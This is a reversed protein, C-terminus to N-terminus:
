YNYVMNTPRFELKCSLVQRPSILLPRSIGKIDTFEFNVVINRLGLTTQLPYYRINGEPQYILYDRGTTSPDIKFDTIVKKSFNGNGTIEGRSSISPSTVTMGDLFDRAFTTNRAEFFEDWEGIVRGSVDTSVDLKNLLSPFTYLAGLQNTATGGLYRVSNSPNIEIAKFQEFSLCRRLNANIFINTGFFLDYITNRSLFIRQSSYDFKFQPILYSIQNLLTNQTGANVTNINDLRVTNLSLSVDGAAISASIGSGAAYSKNVVYLTVTNSEAATIEDIRIGYLGCLDTESPYM